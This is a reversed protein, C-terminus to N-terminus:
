GGGEELHGVELYDYLPGFVRRALAAFDSALRAASSGLRAAAPSRLVAGDAPFTRAVHPDWGREKDLWLREAERLAAAEDKGERQLRVFLDASKPFLALPERQGMRYLAILESFTTAPDAVPGLAITQVAQGAAARGVLYSRREDGASAAACLALHRLWLAIVNKGSIRAFQHGVRGRTWRDGVAGTLRHADALELSLALDPQREGDRLERVRAALPGVTAMIERHDLHGPTGPALLGSARALRELRDGEVGELCLGLLVDGIQYRDLPDLEVPERDGIAVERERLDVGLRHRLLHRVPNEFFRVLQELEVDDDEVAELPAEFFPRVPERELGSLAAAGECFVPDFSFLQASSGDFYRPSFPQLPHRTLLQPHLAAIAEEDDAAGPEGGHSSVLEDVLESVVVSPPLPRNDRVSQGPYTILLQERAALLAELFLYRDDDRRSRDGPRREGPKAMLDHEDPRRHRPFVGDGMGLLAIVRFPISRMPVMACFTVGGRLFGRAPERDDLHLSLLRRVVEADVPEDFGAAEAADAMAEIADRIQQEQGIQEPEVAILDDLLSSLAQRWAAPPRPEALDRVVEFMREAFAVARGLLSADQGEVEDFPLRDAFMARGGTPMAYGLLLRELGFRWTNEAVAPQGHADRHAADIGWRVGGQRLWDRLRDLDEAGIDFRRQVPGLALLDLLESAKARGGVLSLLRQYADIVPSDRRPARDAISFPIYREDSRDRTFVAEVLPAYADVDAMMVLIEDPRVAEPGTLRALLQDRLVEVERMPGHCAHISISGDSPRGRHDGPRGDLIDNQLRTLLSDREAARHLDGAPEQEAVGLTELEQQMVDLTEAALGGCSVLLPHGQELHLAGPSAGESRARALARAGVLDVWYGRAPSPMFWHIEVHRALAALVRLYLPPLSVLGFVALRAPLGEPASPGMLQSLLQRELAAAHAGGLREIIRRWIVPQWAEDHRVAVEDDGRDWARIMEPRYTVYQDLQDALRGALAYRRRCARDGELYHALPSLVPDGTVDGLASMVSWTLRGSDWPEAADEGKLPEFLRAVLSKPYLFDMGACVGHRRALEMALWVAMGRGQVVVWEPDLPGGVPDALLQALQDALVETRNSRYLQITGDGSM